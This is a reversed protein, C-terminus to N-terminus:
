ALLKKSWRIFGPWRELLLSYSKFAVRNTAIVRRIRAIRSRRRSRFAALARSINARNESNARAETFLADWAPWRAHWDLTERRQLNERKLAILTDPERVLRELLNALAAASREPLLFEMQRPGFVEPVIGVDTSVIACGSAMAELVPNPTGEFLSCCVLVDVNKYFDPMDVRPVRRIAKDAIHVTFPVGAQRLLALAPDFISHKGKYDHGLTIGWDSNGVWGIRLPKNASPPAPYQASFLRLDVGDPVCQRIDPLHRQACYYGCLRQSSAAVCDAVAFPNGLADLDRKQDYVHDYVLAIFACRQEAMLQRWGNDGLSDLFALLDFRWLFVAVDSAALIEESKGPKGFWDDRSILNVVYPGGAVRKLNEAVNHFAWDSIDYFISVYVVGTKEPKKLTISLERNNDKGDCLNHFGL